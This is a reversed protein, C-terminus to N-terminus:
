IKKKLYGTGGLLDMQRQIQWARQRVYDSPSAAKLRKPNPLVAALIAAEPPRLKSAPKGFCSRSAAQVGFVGPAFEAINLYIELIRRKPWLLEICVTLYAELGKRLYSRGSWLFLNKAVQQTITSAGRPRARSKNEELANSIADLDFGWHHPFKQDEAAVVAIAMHPSIDNWPVWQYQLRSGAAGNQLMFSSTPPTIWRLMLLILFTVILFGVPIKWTWSLLRRLGLFRIQPPKSYGQRSRQPRSQFLSKM